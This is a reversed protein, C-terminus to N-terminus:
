SKTDLEINTYHMQSNIHNHCRHNGCTKSHSNTNNYEEQGLITKPGIGKILLSLNATNNNIHPTSISLHKMLPPLKHFSLYTPTSGKLTDHTLAYSPTNKAM